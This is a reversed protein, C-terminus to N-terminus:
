GKAARDTRPTVDYEKRFKWLPAGRAFQRMLTALTSSLSLPFRSRIRALVSEPTDFRYVGYVPFLCPSAHRHGRYIAARSYGTEIATEWVRRNWSGFPFSLATVPRAIIDELLRKSDRLEAFLNKTNLFTCDAHTMTHSGIEHGLDSIARLERSSLHRFPPLVDWLSTRGLYGAVPFLTVKFGCTDLVPLAQTYFSHFGDDFTILVRKETKDPTDTLSSAQHLPVSCYGTAKLRNVIRAFAKQSLSSMMLPHNSDISHFLLGPLSTHRARGALALGAAGLAFPACLTTVLATQIM